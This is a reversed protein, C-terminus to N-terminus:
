EAPRLLGPMTEAYARVRKHLSLSLLQSPAFFGAGAGEAVRVDGWQIRRTCRLLHSTQGDSGTRQHVIELMEATLVLGLEECVERRAAEVPSNDVADIRGGWFGWTFPEVRVHADRFQLFIRGSRDFLMVGVSSPPM